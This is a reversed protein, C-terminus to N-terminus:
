EVITVKNTNRSYLYITDTLRDENSVKECNIEKVMERLEDQLLGIVTPVVIIEHISSPLVFLDSNINDAVEKLIDNNLINNAGCIGCDNSIVIMVDDKEYGKYKKTDLEFMLCYMLKDMSIAYNYDNKLNTISWKYLQEETVDQKLSKLMDNTIRISGLGDKIKIQVVYYISMDLFERHVLNKLMDTNTKTCVIRPLVNYELDQLKSIVSKFKNGEVTIENQMDECSTIVSIIEQLLDNYSKNNDAYDNYYDDIYITPVVDNDNYRGVVVDKMANNKYIQSTNIAYHPLQVEIDKILQEKFDNYNLITKM